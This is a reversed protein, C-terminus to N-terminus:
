GELYELATIQGSWVREIEEWLHANSKPTWFRWTLYGYGGANSAAGTDELDTFLATM